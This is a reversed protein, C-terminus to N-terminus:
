AGKNNNQKLQRSHVVVVQMLKGHSKNQWTIDLAHCYAMFLLLILTPIFSTLKTLTKDVKNFVKVYIFSDLFPLYFHPNAQLFTPKLTHFNSVGM